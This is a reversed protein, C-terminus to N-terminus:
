DFVHEWKLGGSHKKRGTCCDIIGTINANTNKVAETLNDFIGVVTNTKPDIAKFKKPSYKKIHKRLPKLERGEYTWRFGGATEHRGACCDIITTFWIDVDQAAESISKYRGIKNGELDYKIVPSKDALPTLDVDDGEYAWRYGGAMKTRKNLAACVTSKHIGAFIAGEVLSGFKKILKGDPSFCAIPEPVGAGGLGGDALNTLCGTGDIIKGWKAVEVEEIKYAETETLNDHLRIFEVTMGEGEISLIRRCKLFNVWNKTPQHAEKIHAVDRKGSGKGIYFPTNNRPDILAYVYYKNNM